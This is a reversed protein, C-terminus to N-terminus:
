VFRGSVDISGRCCNTKLSKERVPDIEEIDRVWYTRQINDRFKPHIIIFIREVIGVSKFFIDLLQKM